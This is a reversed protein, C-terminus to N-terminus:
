KSLSLWVHFRARIRVRVCMGYLYACGIVIVVVVTVAVVSLTQWFDNNKPQTREEWTGITRRENHKKRGREDWDIETEHCYKTMELGGKIMGSRDWEFIGCVCM